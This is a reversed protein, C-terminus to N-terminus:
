LDKVALDISPMFAFLERHFMTKKMDITFQFVSGLLKLLQVVIHLDKCSELVM